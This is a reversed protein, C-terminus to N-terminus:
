MYTRKETVVMPEIAKTDGRWRAMLEAHGLLAGAVLWTLPTLTANPLLDVLNIALVLLLAGVYPSHELRGWTEDRDSRNNQKDREIRGQELWVLFIPLALLGFEALFGVWGFMGIVIIWRGDTVSEIQGTFYNHEQNRGWTGWGFVPKQQVRRLLEEENSFRFALSQAREASVKAAQELMAREPIVDAGKLIPYALAFLALLVAIHAQLRRSALLVLVGVFGGYLLAALTKCLILVGFLYVGALLYRTRTGPTGNRFLAMAFMCTMMVFFAVWIGHELFVMPRFGSGRISQAFLHQFFGYVWTNMQPSLRVEVLVPLSFALGAVVFIRMIDKQSAATALLGRAALFGAITMFQTLIIGVADLMVLGRISSQAFILPEPNTVVTIIPSFLFVAILVRALLSKPLLDANPKSSLIWFVFVALNPLTTKNLAPMLPPDFAVPYPPLILYCGVLSWILAQGAPLKKFLFWIAVPALGLVLYAFTNPM